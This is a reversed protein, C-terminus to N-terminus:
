RNPDIHLPSWLVIRAAFEVSDDTREPYYVLWLALRPSVHSTIFGFQARLLVAQECGVIAAHGFPGFSNLGKAVM